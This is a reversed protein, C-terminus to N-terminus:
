DEYLASPCHCRGRLDSVVAPSGIYREAKLVLFRDRRSMTGDTLLLVAPPHPSVTKGSESPIAPCDRWRVHLSRTRFDPSVGAYPLRGGGAEDRSRSKPGAGSDDVQGPIVEALLSRTIKLTRVTM